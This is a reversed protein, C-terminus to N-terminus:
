FRPKRSLNRCYPCEIYDSSDEKIKDEDEAIIKRCYPCKWKM